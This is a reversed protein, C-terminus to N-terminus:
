GCTSSAQIRIRYIEEKRPIKKFGCLDYYPDFICILIFIINVSRNQELIHSVIFSPFTYVGIQETPRGGEGKAKEKRQCYNNFVLLINKHWSLELARAFDPLKSDIQVTKSAQLRAQFKLEEFSLKICFNFKNQTRVKKIKRCTSIDVYLLQQQSLQQSFVKVISHLDCVFYQCKIHM